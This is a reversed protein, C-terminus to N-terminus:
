HSYHERTRQGLPLEEYTVKNLLNIYVTHHQSYKRLM